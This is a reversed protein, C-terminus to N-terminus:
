RLDEFLINSLYACGAICHQKEFTVTDLHKQILFMADVKNIGVRPRLAAKQNDNLGKEYWCTVFYVWMTENEDFFMPPIEHENPLWRCHLRREEKLALNYYVVFQEVLSRPTYARDQIKFNLYM